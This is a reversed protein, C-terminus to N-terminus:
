IQSLDNPIVDQNIKTGDCTSWVPYMSLIEQINVEFDGGTSWTPYSSKMNTEFDSETDQVQLNSTVAVENQNNDDAGVSTSLVSHYNPVIERSDEELDYNADHLLFHSIEEITVVEVQHSNAHGSVM